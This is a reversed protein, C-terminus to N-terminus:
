LKGIKSVLQRQQPPRMLVQRVNALRTHLLAVAGNCNVLKLPYHVDNLCANVGALM